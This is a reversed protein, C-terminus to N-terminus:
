NGNIVTNVKNAVDQWNYKQAQKFGTENLIDLPVRKHFVDEIAQKIENVSLPDILIAGHGAIEPLSTTNSTIVPTGCAMAEIVPLGFGEYLSPFVLCIAGRYVAALETTSIHGLFKLRNAMGFMNALKRTGESANGMLVLHTEEPINASAFAEIARAENKHPKRNGALLIYTFPPRWIRREQTFSDSVGCSVNKVQTSPISAWEIIRQRSFESITLVHMAHRVSRKVMINFYLKKVFNSRDVRDIYNIDAITIIFKRVFIAPASYGFTLFISNKQTLLLALTLRLPDLPSSPSGKVNLRTYSNRSTIEKTMRGLGHSGAWRYDVYIKPEDAPSNNRECRRFKAFLGQGIIRKSIMKKAVFFSKTVVKCM